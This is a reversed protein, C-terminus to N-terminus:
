AAFGLTLPDHSCPLVFAVYVKFRVREAQRALVDIERYVTVLEDETALTSYTNIAFVPLDFPPATWTVIAAETPHHAAPLPSAAASRIYPFNGHNKAALLTAARHSISQHSSSVKFRKAVESTSNGVSLAEIVRRTRASQANSVANVPYSADAFAEGCLWVLAPAM